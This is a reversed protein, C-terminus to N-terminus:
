KLLFHKCTKCLAAYLRMESWPAIFRTRSMESQSKTLRSSDLLQWHRERSTGGSKNRWVPRSLAAGETWGSRGPPPLAGEASFIAWYGGAAGGAAGCRLLFPQQCDGGLSFNVLRLYSTPQTHGTQWKAKGSWECFNDRNFIGVSCLHGLVVTIM